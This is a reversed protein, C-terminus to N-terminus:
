RARKVPLEKGDAGTYIGSDFRDNDFVFREKKDETSFAPKASSADGENFFMTASKRESCRVEFAMKVPKVICSTSGVSYKGEFFSDEKSQAAGSKLTNSLMRGDQYKIDAIKWDAKEMTLLFILEQKKGLNEFSVPVEAKGNEVKPPRVSFNKIETDQADYLPDADLAGVEGKSEVADKWILDALNKEFYKDVLARDKTQFFPSRRAEHEKYLEAVLADPATQAAVPSAAQSPSLSGTNASNNTNTGQNSTSTSSCGTAIFLAAVLSGLMIKNRMLIKIREKLFSTEHSLNLCPQYYVNSM